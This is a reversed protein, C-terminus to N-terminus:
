ELGEGHSLVSVRKSARSESSGNSRCSKNRDGLHVGGWGKKSKGGGM